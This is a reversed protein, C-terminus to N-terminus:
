LVPVKPVPPLPAVTVTVTINKTVWSHIQKAIYASVDKEVGSVLHSGISDIESTTLIPDTVGTAGSGIWQLNTWWQSLNTGLDGMFTGGGMSSAFSSQLDAFTALASVSNVVQGAVAVSSYDVIAKSWVISAKDITSPPNRQIDSLSSSLKGMDLPM